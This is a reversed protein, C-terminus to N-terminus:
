AAGPPGTEPLAWQPLPEAPVPEPVGRAVNTSRASHSVFRPPGEKVADESRTAFRVSWSEEGTRQEGWHCVCRWEGELLDVLAEEGLSAHM